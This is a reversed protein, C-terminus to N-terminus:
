LAAMLKKAQRIEDDGTKIRNDLKMIFLKQLVLRYKESPEYGMDKLAQGDIELHRASLDKLYKNLNDLYNKGWSGTIVQLEPPMRNLRHYLTSNKQATDKLGNKAAKWKKVSGAIMDIDKNRIMLGVCWKRIDAPKKDRLLLIFIMRWKKLGQGYFKKFKQYHGLAKRMGSFFIPDMVQNIGIKKLAGLEYLRRIAKWPRDENLINILEDRIRVGNLRSVIDMNITTRALGETYKDMKFGLRKEFRVARFIRTPDEIFSMKHLIRIKKNKLDEKGGFYDLLESYSKRNLSLALTNITFDRRSLDQKISAEEVSPPAAPKKYYEVRATAIDIHRGDELILVSTKFKEHCEVRCKFREALKKGFEIGDGEVVIDIDFNPMKLFADRVIGGVLYTKFKLLGSVISIQRFIKQIKDPFFEMLREYSRGYLLRLVDKRTIIGIIKKKDTVPIRGIGNEIMMAQIKEVSTNPGARVIGHSRFGKVPAHSLGHGLAKDVDKRTIIGVLFERDNVIPIGSHGYKRLIKDVEFISVDEKVVRVPYSMIDKAIVPKKINKRLSNIIKDEIEEFKLESIVASSAQPHGGGGVAKLIRSVDADRDDSRAVLYVKEKMKAWCIIISVEEIQSLKRTLVSLGEIYEKIKVASLLVEKENVRIKKCNMILKELLGHQDESLSLNLFKLVVALNAEKELLFSAANLDRSSTGPYTFSGTDEYIGLMFLTAELPSIDIKKAIIQDVLITTSAGVRESHDEDAILDGSTRGHHDYVIAETGKRDFVVKAPGLRSIYKTDIIIVKKVKDFDIGSSGRLVPLEDEYLSIFKRVNSNIATSLIIHAKPYIKKAAVMGAFSDFDSSLHTVIIEIKSREPM